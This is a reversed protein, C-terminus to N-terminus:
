ATAGPLPGRGNHPLAFMAAGDPKVWAVQVVHADGDAPAPTRDNWLVVYRPVANGGRTELAALRRALDRM